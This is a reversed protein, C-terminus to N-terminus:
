CWVHIDYILPKLLVFFCYPDMGLAALYADMNAQEAMHYTGSYNPKSM